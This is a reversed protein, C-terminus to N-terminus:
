IDDIADIAEEDELTTQMHDDIIVDDLGDSLNDYKDSNEGFQPLLGEDKGNVNARFITFIRLVALAILQTGAVYSLWLNHPWMFLAVGLAVYPFSLRWSGFIRMCNWCSLCKSPHDNSCCLQLFLTIVWKIEMFFILASAFLLYVGAGYGHLTIDVGIGCVVIATSVGFIRIFPRLCRFTEGTQRRRNRTDM